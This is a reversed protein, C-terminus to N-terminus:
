SLGVLEAESEDLIATTAQAISTATAEPTAEGVQLAAVGQNWVDLCEAVRLNWPIRESPATDAAAAIQACIPSRELVRPDSWSAVRCGPEAYGGLFMQAGMERSSMFKMWQFAERAASSTRTLAYAIGTASAGLRGTIPHAPMLTGFIADPDHSARLVNHLTQFSHRFMAVRGARFMAQVGGVVHAPKPAFRHRHLADHAWTLCAIVEDTAVECERGDVSLLHGGFLDLLAYAGPMDLRLAYGFQDSKADDDLDLTLSTAAITLDDLSWNRQPESLGARDFLEGHYILVDEGAHAILPLGLLRDGDLCARLAGGFIGATEFGDADVVGDIPQIVDNRSWAVLLAGFPGELLDGLDGAASLAAVRRPYDRWDSLSRWELAITPFLEQFAATMLQGFQTWGYRTVDAVVVVRAWPAPSPTVIKEVTRVVVQTGEVIVTERVVEKVIRTIEKVQIVERVVRRRCGALAWVGGLAASASAGLIQRRTLSRM